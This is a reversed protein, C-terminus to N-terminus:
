LSPISLCFGTLFDILVRRIRVFNFLRRQRPNAIQNVRIVRTAQPGPFSIEEDGEGSFESKTSVAPSSSEGLSSGVNLSAGEEDVSNGVGVSAGVGEMVGVSVSTGVGVSAGVGAMVGAGVSVGVGVSTGVGVMVGVGM